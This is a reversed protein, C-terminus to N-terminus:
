RVAGVQERAVQPAPIGNELLTAGGPGMLILHEANDRRVLLLKYRPGLMLTESVALRRLSDAKAIGPIGYRRAALAAVGLLGLVLAMAGFYRAFDILDM